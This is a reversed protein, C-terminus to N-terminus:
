GGLGLGVAGVVLLPRDPLWFPADDCAREDCRSHSWANCGVEAATVATSAQKTPVRRYCDPLFSGNRLWEPSPTPVPGPTPYGPQASAPPGEGERPHGVIFEGARILGQGPKLDAQKTLGEIGPQSIGDKFGFHERARQEGPRTERDVHGLEDIHRPRLHRQLQRHLRNLDDPLDAALLAIAHIEGQFPTVWHEPASAEKDGLLEAREKM